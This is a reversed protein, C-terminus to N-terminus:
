LPVEFTEYVIKCADAKAQCGADGTEYTLGVKLQQQQQQKSDPLANLNSYGFMAQATGVAAVQHWTEANDDSRLLVGANRGSKHTRNTGAPHSFVLSSSNRKEMGDGAVGLISALCGTGASLDTAFRMDTWTVGYDYSWALGRGKESRGNFIIAHQKLPSHHSTNVEALQAEGSAPILTESLQWTKGGDDSYVVVDEPAKILVALLRGAHPGFKLEIGNGPAIHTNSTVNDAHLQPIQFPHPKTWSFSRSTLDLESQWLQLGTTTNSINDPRFITIVTNHKESYFESGEPSPTEWGVHSPHAGTHNPLLQTGISTRGIVTMPGWTAGGDTSRKVVHASYHKPYIAATPYCHDGQWSRAAAFSLLTNNPLALTGPIRYCPWGNEGHTYVVSKITAAHATFCLLLLAAAV